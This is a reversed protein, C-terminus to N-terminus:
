VASEPDVQKEHNLDCAQPRINELLNGSEAVDATSVRVLKELVCCGNETM